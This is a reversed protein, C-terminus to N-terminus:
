VRDDRRTSPLGSFTPRMRIGFGVTRWRLRWDAGYRGTRKVSSLCPWGGGKLLEGVRELV